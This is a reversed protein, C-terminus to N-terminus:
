KKLLTPLKQSIGFIALEFKKEFVKKNLHKKKCFNKIQFRFFLTKM